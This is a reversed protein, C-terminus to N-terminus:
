AHVPLTAIQDRLEQGPRFRVVYRDPIQISADPNKPNRGIKGKALCIEFNGFTRFTVDDGSALAAAITELTADLTTSAQQQTIGLKDSLRNVIDKKTVTAM